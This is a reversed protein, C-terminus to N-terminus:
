CSLSLEQEIGKKGEREREEEGVRDRERQRRERERNTFPLGLLFEQFKTPRTNM